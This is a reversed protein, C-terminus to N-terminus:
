KNYKYHAENLYNVVSTQEEPFWGTELNADCRKVWANIDNINKAKHNKLDFNGNNGHCQKCNADSYLEKGEEAQESLAFANTSILLISVSLFKNLSNNFYKM